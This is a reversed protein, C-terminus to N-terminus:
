LQKIRRGCRFGIWIFIVTVVIQRGSIGTVKARQHVLVFFRPLLRVYNTIRSGTIEGFALIESLRLATFAPSISPIRATLWSNLRLLYNHGRNNDILNNLWINKCSGFIKAFCFRTPPVLHLLGIFRFALSHQINVRNM